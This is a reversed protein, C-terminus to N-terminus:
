SVGTRTKKRRALNTANCLGYNIVVINIATIEKMRRLKKGDYKNRDETM